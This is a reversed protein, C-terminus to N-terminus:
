EPEPLPEIPLRPYPKEYSCLEGPQRKGLEERPTNAMEEMKKSIYDQYQKELLAAYGAPEIPRNDKYWQM